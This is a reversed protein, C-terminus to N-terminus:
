NGTRKRGARIADVISMEGKINVDTRDTYKEKDHAKLLLAVLGDSYETMTEVAHQGNAEYVPYYIPEGTDLNREVQGTLPDLRTEFRRSFRGQHVLPKQVGQFARRKAEDELATVGIQAATDWEQKFTPNVKAEGFAQGRSVGAAACANGINCTNALNEIFRERQPQSM